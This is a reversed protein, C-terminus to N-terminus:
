SLKDVGKSHVPPLVPVPIVGARSCGFFADVFDLDPLHVLLVRDDSKILPKRCKLLKHATFYCERLTGGYTRQSIAGEEDIWSYLIKNRMVEPGAHPLYKFQRQLVVREVEGGMSKVGKIALEKVVPGAVNASNGYPFVTTDAHFREDCYSQGSSSQRCHVLSVVYDDALIIDRYTGTSSETLALKHSDM